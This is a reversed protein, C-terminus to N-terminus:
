SSVGVATVIRRALQDFDSCKKRIAAINRAAEEALVRRGGGPSDSVGRQRALPAFYTEKVEIERRGARNAGRVSSSRGRRRFDRMRLYNNSSRTHGM